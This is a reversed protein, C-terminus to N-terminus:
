LVIYGTYSVEETSLSIRYEGTLSFLADIFASEDGYAGVCINGSDYIEYLIFDPTEQGIFSIGSDPDITCALPRSPRREGYEDKETYEPQPNTQTGTQVPKGTVQFTLTRGGAFSFCGFTLMVCAAILIKRFSNNM